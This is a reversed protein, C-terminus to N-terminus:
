SSRSESSLVCEMLVRLCTGGSLILIVVFAAIIFISAILSIWRRRHLSKVENNDGGPHDAGNETNSHLLPTREHGGTAQGPQPQDAM